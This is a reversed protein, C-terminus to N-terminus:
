RHAEAPAARGLRSRHPPASRKNHRGLQKAPQFSTHIPTGLTHSASPYLSSAKAMPNLQHKFQAVTTQAGRCYSPTHPGQTTGGLQKAPQFSTHIPTGLTHSALATHFYPVSAKCQIPNDTSFQDIKAQKCKETRYM